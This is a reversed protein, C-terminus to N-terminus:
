RVCKTSCLLESSRLCVNTQQALALVYLALPRTQSVLGVLAVATLHVVAFNPPPLAQRIAKMRVYTKARWYQWVKAVCFRWGWRWFGRLGPSSPMFLGCPWLINLAIFNRPHSNIQRTTVDYSLEPPWLIHSAQDWGYSNCVGHFHGGGAPTEVWWLQNQENRVTIPDVLLQQLAIDKPLYVVKETTPLSRCTVHISTATPLTGAYSNSVRVSNYLPPLAHHTIRPVM